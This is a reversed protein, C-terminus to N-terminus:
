IRATVDIVYDEHLRVIAKKTAKRHGLRGRLRKRKGRYNMVNVSLVEVDFLREIAKRIEFKNAQCDVFFTMQSHMSSATSKETVVPDYIIDYHKLSTM